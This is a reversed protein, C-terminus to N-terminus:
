TNADPLTADDSADGTMSGMAVLTEVHVRNARGGTGVKRLVWGAHSGATNAAGTGTNQRENVDVGFVGIAMGARGLLSDTTAFTTNGFLQQTNATMGLGGTDGFKPANNAADLNGWLAM